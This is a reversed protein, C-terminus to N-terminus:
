QGPPTLGPISAPGSPGGIVPPPPPGPVHFRTSWGARTQGDVQAHWGYTRGPKVPVGEPFGITVQARAFMSDPIYVNPPTPRTVSVVQQIRLPELTGVTDTVLQVPRGTSEDRLELSFAFQQGHYKGPIDIVAALYQPASLGNQQVGTLTFGAGIANIKGATDIGIYDALLLFMNTDDYIAM